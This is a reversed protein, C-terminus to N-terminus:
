ESLINVIQELLNYLDNKSVIYNNVLPHNIFEEKLLELSQTQIKYNALDNQKLYEKAQEQTEKIVNLLSLIYEDNMLIEKLKFYQKAETTEKLSKNLEKALKDM